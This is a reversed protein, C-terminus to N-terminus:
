KEVDYGDKKMRDEIAKRVLQSFNIETQDLYEQHRDEIYVHKRVQKSREGM